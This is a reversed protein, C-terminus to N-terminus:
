KKGSHLHFIEQAEKGVRAQWYPEPATLDLIMQPGQWLNPDLPKVACPNHWLVPTKRAISWPMLENVLLVASVQQNRPGRRASWFGNEETPRDPLLPSRTMVAEGSQKDILAVEQGFLVEDIGCYLSDKALVNVAIVYPLDFNGYKKAKEELAKQLSNLPKSRQASSSLALVTKGGLKGRRDPPKPIAVFVIKWGNLDYHPWRDRTPITTWGSVEDPDLTQLWEHIDSCIKKQPLNHISEQEIYLKIRFNPEQLSDLANWLERITGQSVSSTDIDMAVTAELYFLHTDVSQALFDIPNSKVKDVIQQPKTVFGQYRLMAYSYLEFFAGLHDNDLKSCIRKHMDLQYDKPYDQFWTELINRTEEYISQASRNLFRYISERPEKSATYTRVSDDFLKM